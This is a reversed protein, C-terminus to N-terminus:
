NVENNVVKHTVINIYANGFTDRHQTGTNIRIIQIFAPCKLIVFFTRGRNDDSVINSKGNVHNNVNTDITTDKIVAVVSKDCKNKCGSSCHNYIIDKLFPYKRLVSLLRGIILLNRDTMMLLFYIFHNVIPDTMNISRTQKRNTCITGRNCLDYTHNAISDNYQITNKKEVM